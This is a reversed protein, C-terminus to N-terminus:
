DDHIMSNMNVQSNSQMSHDAQGDPSEENREELIQSFEGRNM